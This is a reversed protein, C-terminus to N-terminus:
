CQRVLGPAHYPLKRPRFTLERLARDVPECRRLRDSGTMMAARRAAVDESAAGAGLADAASSGACGDPASAASRLWDLMGGASGAPLFFRASLTGGADNGGTRVISVRAKELAISKEPTEHRALTAARDRARGVL